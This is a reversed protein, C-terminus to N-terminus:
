RFMSLASHTCFAYGPVLFGGRDVIQEVTCKSHKESASFTGVPVDVSCQAHLFAYGPVLTSEVEDPNSLSPQESFTSM